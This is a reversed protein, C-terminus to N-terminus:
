ITTRMADIVRALEVPPSVPDPWPDSGKQREFRVDAYDVLYLSTGDDFSQLNAQLLDNLRSAVNVHTCRSGTPTDYIVLRVWARVIRLPEASDLPELLEYAVYVKGPHIPPAPGFDREYLWRSM